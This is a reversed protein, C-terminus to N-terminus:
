DYAVLNHVSTHVGVSSRTVQYTETKMCSLLCADRTGGWYIILPQKTWIEQWTGSLLNGLRLPQRTYPHQFVFIVKLVTSFELSRRQRVATFKNWLPSVAEWSRFLTNSLSAMIIKLAQVEVVFCKVYCVGTGCSVFTM